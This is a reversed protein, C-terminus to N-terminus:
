KTMKLIEQDDSKLVYIANKLGTVYPWARDGYGFIAGNLVM